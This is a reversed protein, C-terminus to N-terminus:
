RRNNRRLADQAARKQSFTMNEYGPIKGDSEPPERFSQSYSGVGQSAVKRIISEWGRVAKESWLGGFLDTLTDEPVLGKIFNQVATVRATGTAGLKQVEREVGANFAQVQNVEKAAALAVLRRFADQGSIRGHDIDYMLRQAIPVLPDQENLKFEIGQPVQFDSPLELRYDEPAKALNARRSDETAKHALLDKIEQETLSVDGFRYAGTEDRSIPGIARQEGDGAPQQQGPATGPSAASGTGDAEARAARSRALYRGENSTRDSWHDLRREANPNTPSSRRERPAAPAQSARRQEFSQAPQAPASTPSSSPTSSPATGPSFEGPDTM